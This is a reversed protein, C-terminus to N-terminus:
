TQQVCVKLTTSQSPDSLDVSECLEIELVGLTVLIVIIRVHLVATQLAIITGIEWSQNLNLFLVVRCIVKM